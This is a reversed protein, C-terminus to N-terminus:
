ILKRRARPIRVVIRRVDQVVCHERGVAIHAEAATVYRRPERSATELDEISLLAREPQRNLTRWCEQAPARKKLHCPCGGALVRRGLKQHGKGGTQPLGIATDSSFSDGQLTLRSSFM